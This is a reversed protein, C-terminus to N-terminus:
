CLQAQLMRFLVEARCVAANALACLMSRHAPFQQAARRYEEAAGVERRHLWRLAEPITCERLPEACRKMREGTELFWLTELRRREECVACAMKWLATHRHALRRYLCVATETEALQRELWATPKPPEPEGLVRKWIERTKEKDYPNM